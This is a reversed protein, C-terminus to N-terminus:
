SRDAPATIAYGGRYFLLPLRDPDAGLHRVQGVVITHDGGDYEKWLECDIWASVGPLLPAGSPTRTWHVDAFKDAGSRAFGASHHEHDEALVNVCFAGIERIRPWTTSTRAPSFTILPPDLSLSAFSQCTFGVPGDPGTATIVVIGSAFHGLVERLIQSTVTDSVVATDVSNVTM